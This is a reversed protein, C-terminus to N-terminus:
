MYPTTLYDDFKYKGAQSTLMVEFIEGEPSLKVATLEYNCTVAQCVKHYTAMDWNGGFQQSMTKVSMSGGWFLVWLRLQYSASRPRRLNCIARHMRYQVILQAGHYALRASSAVAEGISETHGFRM